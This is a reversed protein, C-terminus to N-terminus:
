GERRTRAMRQSTTEVPTRRLKEIQSRPMRRVPNGNSSTMAYGAEHDIEVIKVPLCATESMMTNGMRRRYVSYLVDGAKVTDFKIAMTM